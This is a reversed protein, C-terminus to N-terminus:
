YVLNRRSDGEYLHREHAAKRGFSINMAEKGGARIRSAAEEMDHQHARTSNSMDEIVM